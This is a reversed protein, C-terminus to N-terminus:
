ENAQFGRRIEDFLHQQYRWFEDADLHMGKCLKKCSIKFLSAWFAGRIIGLLWGLRWLFSKKM